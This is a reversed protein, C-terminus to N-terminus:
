GAVHINRIEGKDVTHLLGESLRYERDKDTILGLNHTVTLISLNKSYCAQRLMAMVQGTSLIDLEGTPEDALLLAPRKLLARIVAVRQREGGSLTEPYRRLIGSLGCEEFMAEAEKRLAPRAKLFGPRAMYPLLVNDGINLSPILRDRQYVYGISRNRFMEQGGRKLIGIDRGMFHYSGSDPTDLLGLINLLTSKGCGSPGTIFTMVGPEITLDLSNLVRRVTGGDPYSKCIGKIIIM